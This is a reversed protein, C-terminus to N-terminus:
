QQWVRLVAIGYNGIESGNLIIFQREAEVFQTQNPSTAGVSVNAVSVFGGSYNYYAVSLNYSLSPPLLSALTSNMLSSNKSSLAGSMDLVALADGAQKKQALPVAGGEHSQSALFFLSAAFVSLVIVAFAADLTFIFAKKESM